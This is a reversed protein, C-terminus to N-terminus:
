SLLHVFYSEFLPFILPSLLFLWLLFSVFCYHFSRIFSIVSPLQYIFSFSFPFISLPNLFISKFSDTIYLSNPFFTFSSHSLSLSFSLLFVSIFSNLRCLFLSLSSLYRHWCWEAYYCPPLATMERWREEGSMVDETYRARYDLPAPRKSPVTWYCVERERLSTPGLAM